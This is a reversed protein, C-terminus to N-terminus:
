QGENGIFTDAFPSGWVNEMNSIVDGEADGGAATGAVFDVEVGASSKSYDLTDLGEGGDIVDAGAEGALTDDGAGGLLSDAGEGGRVVDEGAGGELVDDGAAGVLSDNGERGRLHDDGANGWLRDDGPAVTLRMRERLGRYSM